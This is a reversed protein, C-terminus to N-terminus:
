PQSTWERFIVAARRNLEAKPVGLSVMHDETTKELAKALQLAEDALAEIREVLRLRAAADYLDKRNQHRSRHILWNREEVLRELRPLFPVSGSTSKRIDGFLQGLTKKETKAFMSQVTERATEPGAKHVMILYCAAVQELVQLQWVAFGVRSATDAFDQPTIPLM